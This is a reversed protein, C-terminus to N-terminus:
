VIANRPELKIPAFDLVTELDGAKNVKRKKSNSNNKNNNTSFTVIAALPCRCAIISSNLIRMVIGKETLNLSWVSRVSGYLLSFLIWTLGSLLTVRIPIRSVDDKMSNNTM